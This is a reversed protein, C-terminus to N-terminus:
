GANRHHGIARERLAAVTRHLGSGHAGKFWWVDGDRMRHQLDQQLDERRRHYSGRQHVPLASWFDCYAEGVAHVEDIALCAIAEALRRHIARSNEGLELMEGLVLVRRGTCQTSALSQAAAAMAIPAANFADDVVMAQGSPSAAVYFALGRGAPPSWDQLLMAARRWDEGAADLCALCGVANIAQHRAGPLLVMRLRGYPTQYDAAGTQSCFEALRWQADQHMGYTIISVDKRLAHDRVRDYLQADRCIVAHGGSELARLVASKADAIGELTHFGELHAESINTVIAIHPRLIPASRTAHGVAVEQVLYRHTPQLATLSHMVGMFMNQNGTTALVAQSGHMKQLVTMLMSNVSSKGASGTVAFIRGSFASRRLTAIAKSTRTWNTDHLHPRDSLPPNRDSGITAVIASRHRQLEAKSLGMTGAGSKVAAISRQKLTEVSFAVADFVMDDVAPNLGCDAGLLQRVEGLSSSLIKQRSVSGVRQKLLDCVAGFDSDRRSGKVLIVDDARISESLFDVLDAAKSFHPGLLQKPLKERLYRMEDGHTVVLDPRAEVLPEALSQHLAKSMDGLHVIRGLVAIRRGRREVVSQRMVAIANLMSHIEANWSDDILTAEGDALRLSFRQLRGPQPAMDVLGEKLQTVDHGMAYLVTLAAMANHIMGDGPLPVNLRGNLGDPTQFTIASGDARMERELIRMTALPGEGFVLLTQAHARAKAAVSDFCPLHDGLIAVAKGSLGDFIRSKFEAVDAVSRVRRDTQSWGIETILAITPRILRTVPGRQMWLASQAIEVIAADHHPSLSALLAPAGVRSNYNDYSSIVNRNQGLMARIMAATTSKGATGTVAVVDGGFRSRAAIGLEILAKIPDKVQLLPFDESLGEVPKTVIAGALVHQNKAILGHTDMGTRATSYQEHRALHDFESAVYLTPADTFQRHSLGRIVSRVFWDPKPAVLWHGGTVAALQDATWTQGKICADIEPPFTERYARADIARQAQSSQAPRPRGAISLAVRAPLRIAPAEHQKSVIGIEVALEGNEWDKLYPPRLGYLDRYLQGPRFARTPVLWDCPDHDMARGWARMKGPRVPVAKIDIRIDEDMRRDSMWFTEVWLMQRETLQQPWVRVGMLSLPGFLQPAIRADEPVDAPTWVPAIAAQRAPGISRGEFQSAPPEMTPGFAGRQPRAPPALQLVGEGSATVVMRTGLAECRSAFDRSAQIAAAGELQITTAFGGKLPTFLVTRVGDRSLELSFLGTAVPGNGIADFLLDGADHLIPRDKYVEIGQLLHASAGLVADAGADIIAHGAARKQASPHAVLNDGWHVAVLVVDAQLRAEAIRPTLTELWIAPAELPLYASGATDSGAAFRHQTADINFVALRLDALQRFLPRFATERDEGTGVSGIGAAKLWATQDLVAASGYDGSHNNATAVIDIGSRTLIELMEPRARYYYPGGEGKNIGQEGLTTVVCELNVIRLDARKLAPIQLVNEVGLEATRYHQRRGLNVDGGWAVLPGRAEYEDMLPAAEVVSTPKSRTSRTLRYNRYAILGSLYHEVDDIRARFGHHRIFFSGVIRNPNAFFMALEPWFHGNLLYHARTELAQYFKARDVDDLLDDFAGDAELRELMQQAAMMLELLTPFTTIRHTVFDLHDAFNKLGFRYYRREPRYRTLENVAYALWHDHAKWHEQSIFAEFAREVTDLWRQNGTLAYLRLLGFAAEGDYYITRFQAKLTLAPYHLVHSFGGSEPDQMLCIAAALQELLVHYRATQHVESYKVLALLCVANGGLKVEDQADVLVAVTAGHHEVRKILRDTLYTLGREIADKLQKDRTVEYAEIMAYLSSAHRLSNYGHIPRDFCPYWGYNFRGTEDVQSALYLSGRMILGDLEDGDLAEIVRRGSNRGAQELTHIAALGGEVFVGRTTFRYVVCDETPSAPESGGKRKLYQNVKELSIVAHSQQADGYALANANIEMELLAASFKSDFAIGERFYNRKSAAIKTKLAKWSLGSAQDVWEIRLWKVPFPTAALHDEAEAVLASWCAEITAACAKVTVARASGDSMSLFLCYFTEITTVPRAQAVIRSRVRQALAKFSEQM